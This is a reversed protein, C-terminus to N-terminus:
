MSRFSPIRPTPFCEEGKFFEVTSLEHDLLVNKSAKVANAPRLTLEDSRDDSTDDVILHAFRKAKRGLFVVASHVQRTKAEATYHSPCSATSPIPKDEGFDNSLLSRSGRSRRRQELKDEQGAPRCNEEEHEQRWDREEKAARDDIIRLRSSPESKWVCTTSRLGCRSLPPIIDGELEDNM